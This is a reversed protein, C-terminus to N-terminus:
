RWWGSGDSEGGDTDRGGVVMVRAMMMEVM